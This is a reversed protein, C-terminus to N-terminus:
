LHYKFDLNRDGTLCTRDDEVEGKAIRVKKRNMHVLLWIKGVVLVQSLVLAGLSFSHGLVYPSKRYIQGAVIGATNGMTQQFGIATARRQFPAVNVNLWTVNIGVGVYVGVACLFTAFFKVANSHATLLVIYGAIGFFNALLIFQCHTLERSM